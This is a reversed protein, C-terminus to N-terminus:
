FKGAIGVRGILGAKLIYGPYYGKSKYGLKVYGHLVGKKNLAVDTNALLAGGYRNRSPRPMDVGANFAELTPSAEFNPQKWTDIELGFSSSQGWQILYPANIHVGGFTFQALEGWRVDVTIPNNGVKFYGVMDNELGYPTLRVRFAPLFKLCTDGVNFKFMPVSCKEGFLIYKIEAYVSYYIMPDLLNCSLHGEIDRVTLNAKPYLENIGFVYGTIDNSDTQYNTKNPVDDDDSVLAYGWSSLASQIYLGALRSDIENNEVWKRAITRTM